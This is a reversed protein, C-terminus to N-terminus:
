RARRREVAKAYADWLRTASATWSFRPARNAGRQRLDELRAPSHLLEAVANAMGQPDDPEFYVAADGCVEPLAGRRSVLLPVGAAMAEVAPLGFGEDFSPLILARAQDYFARRQAEELYGIYQVVGKLPARELRWLLPAASPPAGGALVLPVRHGGDILRSWADLLGDINKRPELTGVCIVPGRDPVAARPTWEPAGNHCTVIRGPDVGLRRAVQEAVTASVTVV